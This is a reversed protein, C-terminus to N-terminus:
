RATSRPTNGPRSTAHASIQVRSARAIGSGSASSSACAGSAPRAYPARRAPVGQGVPEVPQVVARGDGAGGIAVAALALTTAIVTDAAIMKAKM